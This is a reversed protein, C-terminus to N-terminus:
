CLGRRGLGGTEFWDSCLLSLYMEEHVVCSVGQKSDEVVPWGDRQMEYLM